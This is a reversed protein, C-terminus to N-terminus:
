FGLLGIFLGRFRRPGSVHCSVEWFGEEVM